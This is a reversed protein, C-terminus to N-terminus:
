GRIKKELMDRALTPNAKGKSAKMVQGVLYQLANEVGNRYDAVSKENTTIVEEAIRELEETDNMQGLNLRDIIHSPDSDGGRMM